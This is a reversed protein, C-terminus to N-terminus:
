CRLYKTMRRLFAKEHEPSIATACRRCFTVSFERLITGALDVNGETPGSPEMAVAFHAANLSAGGNHSEFELLFKVFGM